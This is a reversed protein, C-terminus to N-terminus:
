VTVWIGGREDSNQCATILKQAALGDEFTPSLPSPAKGDEHQAVNSIFDFLSHIHFQIWGVSNKTVGFAYPKPYRSVCEIRQFGRRGGLAEEPPTADYVDLWNPDMLNFRLAGQSGHLELRIEDQAGTALRSAELSGYAGGALQAQVLAIDDVDVKRMQGSKVDLRETIVTQLRASVRQFEGARGISLPPGVLFRVLDFIHAGLDVIAGGGSRARDMRWTYPRRPDIYGAHLYAARFSFLEGLFGSEALQRARLIAPVFRYNFTMQQVTPVTRALAAIEEAEEKTLALPKDCYIHKGAKLADRLIPYHLDNPACVNIIQIDKRELLAQYDGTAFLFGAQEQAKKRSEETATCVGVLRLKAPLPDYFLPLSLYAHTHVKGIFGYGVIGVGYTHM